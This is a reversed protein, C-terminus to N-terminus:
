ESAADKSAIVSPLLFFALQPRMQLCLQSHLHLKDVWGRGAVDRHELSSLHGM